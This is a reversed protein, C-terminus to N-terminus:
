KEVVLGVGNWNLGHLGCIGVVREGHGALTTVSYDLPRGYWDSVYRDEPTTHGTGPRVWIVKMAKMYEDGAAIIGGVVYGEKGVIIKKGPNDPLDFLPEIDHIGDDVGPEGLLELRFGVIPRGSKSYIATPSGGNGGIIRTMTVNPDDNPYGYLHQVDDTSAPGFARRRRPTAVPLRSAVAVTPAGTLSISGTAVTVVKGSSRITLTYPLSAVAADNDAALEFRASRAKALNVRVTQGGMDVDVSELGAVPDLSGSVKGAAIEGVDSLRRPLGAVQVTANAAHGTVTGYDYEARVTVPRDRESTPFPVLVFACEANHMVSTFKRPPLGPTAIALEATDTPDPQGLTFCSSRFTISTSRARYDISAPTLTAIPEALMKSLRSVPIAFNIGSGPLGKQVIGVVNGKGDM